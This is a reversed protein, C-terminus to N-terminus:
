ICFHVINLVIKQTESLSFYSIAPHVSAGDTCRAAILAAAAANGLGIADETGAHTDTPDLGIDSLMADWIDM